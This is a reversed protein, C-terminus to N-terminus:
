HPASLATVLQDYANSVTQGSQPDLARTAPDFLTEPDFQGEKPWYGMQGHTAGARTDKVWRTIPTAQANPLWSGDDTAGWIQFADCSQEHRICLAAMEGYERGQNAQQEATTPQDPGPKQKIACDTETLSFRLGSAIAASINAEFQKTNLGDAEVHAQFGLGDVRGGGARIHAILALVHTMKSASWELNYENYYLAFGDAPTIRRGAITKGANAAMEQAAWRYIDNVYDYGPKGNTSSPGNSYWADEDRYAFGLPSAPNPAEKVVENTVDWATVVRQGYRVRAAANQAMTADVVQQVYSRLMDRLDEPTYATNLVQRGGAGRVFLPPQGAPFTPLTYDRYYVMCHGRVTLRSPQAEAWTCIQSLPGNADYLNTLAVYHGNVRAAGGTWLSMMKTENGAEIQNFQGRVVAQYAKDRPDNTLLGPQYGNPPYLSPGGQLTVATGIRFPVAHIDSGRRLHDPFGAQASAGPALVILAALSAFVTFSARVAAKSVQFKM